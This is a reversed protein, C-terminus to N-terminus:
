GCGAVGGHHSCCGRHPGGCTCSPSLTGDNCRLGRPEQYVPAEEAARRRREAARQREQREQREQQQRERDAAALARREEATAADAARQLDKERVALQAAFGGYAQEHQPQWRDACAHRAAVW